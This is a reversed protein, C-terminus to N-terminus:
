EIVAAKTEIAKQLSALLARGVEGGDGSVKERLVARMADIHAKVIGVANDDERCGEGTADYLMKGFTSILPYGFTGGQGRLELALLNIEQFFRGRGGEEDASLAQECLAALKALYNQAWTTFDLAARELQQEAEELLDLPMEAAGKFGAGGAKEKLNNPLRFYWVDSPSKPKVVKDPSYVITIDDDEKLRRESGPPDQKQRRRDPGFYKTTTVFQRPQEIVKVLHKYVSGASFPKALFETCGLDRASNVYAADAAGSLMIFPVMRNASEKATRSWRLFLLGNIPAMVLDSIIIDPAIISGAGGLTKMYDIAEEGNKATAIRGFQFYRLLDELTQRVYGNDEVLFVGLRSFDFSGLAL